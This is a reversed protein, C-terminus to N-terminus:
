DKEMPHNVIRTAVLRAFIFGLGAPLITMPAAGTWILLGFGGFLLALRLGLGAAFGWGNGGHMLHNVSRWLVLFYVTGVALGMVLSALLPAAFNLTNIM